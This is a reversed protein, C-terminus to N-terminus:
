WEINKDIFDILEKAMHAQEEINPHGPSRKDTMFFSYINEDEISDIAQEIYGPWPSGPKVADMSGLTCLIKAEPYKSRIDKVFRQYRQIIDNKTPAKTGFRAKFEPFDPRNVLWSDNQLLNIIVLEPTYADFNWSSDPVSPDTRNYMEPMTMPFWSINIGIGSRCICRYEADYHRAIIGGYTNYSNTFSSDPNDSGSFDEIAYGASISNGYIEMKRKPSVPKDLVKAKGDIQFGYFYTKGKYGETRRYLSLTHKGPSLGEALLYKKRQDVTRILRTSDGDLFVNYYNGGKDDKLDASISNGEFNVKVENGSWYLEMASTQPAVKTRGFYVIDPSSFPVFISQSNCGVM